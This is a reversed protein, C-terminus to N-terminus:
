AAIRQLKRNNVFYYTYTNFTDNLVRVNEYYYDKKNRVLYDLQYM